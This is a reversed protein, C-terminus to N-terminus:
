PTRETSAVPDTHVVPAVNSGAWAHVYRDVHDEMVWRAATERGAAALDARLNPERILRRLQSVWERPRSAFLGAGFRRYEDSPSCVFPVGCAAYDLPKLFSKSRNFITDALPAIGIDFQAVATPYDALTTGEALEPARKLALVRDVDATDGLVRFVVSPETELITNMAGRLVNLDGAHSGVRGTWGIVVRDPDREVNVDLYRRPIHNEVVTARRGGYRRALEPTTVVTADAVSIARALHQYNAEPNTGPNVYSFADHQAHVAGLDDDLEIVVRVGHRRLLQIAFQNRWALPRQFVVVDFDIEGILKAEPQGNYNIGVMVPMSRMPGPEFVTVDYGAARALDGPWRMRLM